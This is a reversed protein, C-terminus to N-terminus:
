RLRVVRYYAAAGVGGALISDNTGVAFRSGGFNTWSGLSLDTSIQVQYIFGPQSSWSLRTGQSTSVLQVRMVSNPDRPATGALFEQLNSTGDGDSDDAPKPWALVDPGFNATMWEFPIGGYSAGSWTTGSTQPSLPSHRGDITVYSMRFSHTSSAAIGSLTWVNDATTAAPSASGDVYIEYNAVQLGEVAPWSAQLQPQYAGSTDVVFPASVFPATPVPLSQSAAYRQAFLDFSTNGGVFSTWVVLFRSIGDSGVAPHMQQSVTTTNVRIEDGVPNGASSLARGYVGERSGDQALSTWVVMYDSGIAAIHPAFQDGYSYSNVQVAASVPHSNSDFSRAFIDWSNTNVMSGKQSWAVTMGGSESVAMVPNACPDNDSSVRFEDGRPTGTASFLRGFIDAPYRPVPNTVVIFEAQSIPATTQREGVWVLTFGGDPLAAASSSRQSLTTSQNAQFESGIKDGTPSFLQAYVGYLSGDQGYSSWALLVNGGTLVCVTPDIQHNNTYTNVLRDGTAFTGDGKLFRAYIHQFGSPGGQWVFVAGGDKLLAVRANEQDGAAQENVRFVGFSGSLNNNIRRASIGFGDGDTVNDQWVLYGGSSNFALQPFVQDGPLNGAIPYEGGQPSYTNEALVATAVGTFLVSFAFRKWASLVSSMLYFERAIGGLNTWTKKGFNVPVVDYRIVPSGIPSSLSM